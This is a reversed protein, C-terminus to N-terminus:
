YLNEQWSEQEFRNCFPNGHSWLNMHSTEELFKFGQRVFWMWLTNDRKRILFSWPHWPIHLFEFISPERCTGDKNMSGMAVWKTDKPSFAADNYNSLHAAEEPINANEDSMEKFSLIQTTNTMDYVSMAKVLSDLRDQTSRLEFTHWKLRQGDQFDQQYRSIVPDQICVVTEIRPDVLLDIKRLSSM